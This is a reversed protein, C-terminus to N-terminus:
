IYILGVDSYESSVAHCFQFSSLLVILPHVPYWHLEVVLSLFVFAFSDGDCSPWPDGLVTLLSSVKDVGLVLSLSAGSGSANQISLICLIYM